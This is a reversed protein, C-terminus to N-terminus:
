TEEKAPRKEFCGRSCWAFKLEFNNASRSDRRPVQRCASPPKSAQLSQYTSRPLNKSRKSQKKSAKLLCRLSFILSVSCMQFFLIQPLFPVEWPRQPQEQSRKFPDRVAEQSTKSPEQPSRLAEQPPRANKVFSNFEADTKVNINLNQTGNSYTKM